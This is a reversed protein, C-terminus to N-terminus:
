YGGMILFVTTVYLTCCTLLKWGNVFSLFDLTQPLRDKRQQWWHDDTLWYRSLKLLTSFLDKAAEENATFYLRKKLLREESVQAQHFCQSESRRNRSSLLPCPWDDLPILLHCHYQNTLIERKWLICEKFIGEISKKWALTITVKLLDWSVVVIWRKWFNQIFSQRLRPKSKTMLVLIEM